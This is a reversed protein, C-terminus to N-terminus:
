IKINSSDFKDGLTFGEQLECESFMSYCSSCNLPMEVSSGGKYCLYTNMLIKSLTYMDKRYFVLNKNGKTEKFTQWEEGTLEELYETCEKISNKSELNCFVEKDEICGLYTFGKAKMNEITVKDM